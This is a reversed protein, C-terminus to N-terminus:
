KPEYGVTTHATRQSGPGLNLAAPGTDPGMSVSGPSFAWNSKPSRPAQAADQRPRCRQEAKPAIGHQNRTRRQQHNVVLPVM